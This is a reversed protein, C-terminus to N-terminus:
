VNCANFVEDGVFLGTWNLKKLVWFWTHITYMLVLLFNFYICACVHIYMALLHSSCAFEKVNSSSCYIGYKFCLWQISSMWHNKVNSYPIKKVLVVPNKKINEHFSTRLVLSFIWFIRGWSHFLNRIWRWNFDNLKESKINEETKSSCTERM